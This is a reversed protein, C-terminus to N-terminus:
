TTPMRRQRRAALRGALPAAFALCWIFQAVSPAALATATALLFVFVPYVATALLEPNPEDRLALIWLWANLAAIALLHIGYIVAVM